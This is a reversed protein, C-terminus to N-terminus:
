SKPKQRYAIVLVFFAVPLWAPIGIWFQPVPETQSIWWFDHRNWNSQPTLKNQKPQFFTGAPDFREYTQRTDFPQHQASYGLLLAGNGPWWLRYYTRTVTKDHHIHDTDIGITSHHTYSSLWMGGFAYVAITLLINVFIRM